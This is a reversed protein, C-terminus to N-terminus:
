KCWLAFVMGYLQSKTVACHKKNYPCHEFCCERMGPFQTGIDKTLIERPLIDELNQINIGLLSSLMKAKNAGKTFFREKSPLSQLFESLKKLAFTASKLNQPNYSWRLGHINQELFAIHHEASDTSIQANWAFYTKSPCPLIYPWLTDRKVDYLALEKIFFKSNSHQYGEVEVIFVM